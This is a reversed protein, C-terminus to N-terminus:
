NRYPVEEEPMTTAKKFVPVPEKKTLSKTMAMEIAPVPKKKILTKKMSMPQLKKHTAEHMQVSPLMKNKVGLAAAVAGGVASGIPCLLGGITEGAKKFIGDPM